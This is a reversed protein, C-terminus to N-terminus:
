LHEVLNKADQNGVPRKPNPESHECRYKSQQSHVRRRRRHGVEFTRRQQGLRLKAKVLGQVFCHQVVELNKRHHSNGVQDPDFFAGDVPSLPEVLDKGLVNIEHEAIGIREFRDQANLEIICRVISWIPNFSVLEDVVRKIGGFQWQQSNGNFGSIIGPFNAVQDFLKQVLHLGAADISDCTLEVPLAM